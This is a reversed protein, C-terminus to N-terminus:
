HRLMMFVESFIKNSKFLNQTAFKLGNYDTIKIYNISNYLAFYCNEVLLYSLQKVLVATIKKKLYFSKITSLQILQNM